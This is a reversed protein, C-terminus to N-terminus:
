RTGGPNPQNGQNSQPNTPGQQGPAGGRGGRGGGRGAFRERRKEQYRQYEQEGLAAKVKAERKAREQQGRQRFYERMKDQQDKTLIKDLESQLERPLGRGMMMPAGAPPGGPRGPGMQQPNTTEARRREREERAKEWLQELQRQQDPTINAYAYMERRAKDMEEPSPPRFEDTVGNNAVAGPRVKNVRYFTWGLGSVILLVAVILKVTTHDKKAPTKM